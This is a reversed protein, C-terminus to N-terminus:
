TLSSEAPPGGPTVRAPTGGRAPTSGAAAAAEIEDAQRLLEAALSARRERSMGEWTEEGEEQEAAQPVRGYAQDALRALVHASREEGQAAQRAMRKVLADLDAQDLRALSIGLKERFGGADKSLPRVDEAAAEDAARARAREWRLRAAESPTMGGFMPSGAAKPEGEEGSEEPMLIADMEAVLREDLAEEGETPM